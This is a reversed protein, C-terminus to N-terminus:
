RYDRGFEIRAPDALDALAQLVNPPYEALRHLFHLWWNEGYVAYVRVPVGRDRLKRLLEPRVGHLMEVEDVRELLGAADLLDHMVPDQTAASVTLGHDLLRTLLDLYRQDLEPGRPLAIDESEQYTGKVLRVKGGIAALTELDADTRRLHAQITIGVNDHEAGLARYVELIQDVYSSREMSLLLGTNKAAAARALMATNALALDTSVLSGVSSLDFGLQVPADTGADMADILALYEAVVLKITAPDRVEEGVYEVALRYGLEALTRLKELAEDLESAVVYRGAAPSLTERLLPNDRFASRFDEGAALHRLTAAPLMTAAAGQELGIGAPLGPVAPADDSM